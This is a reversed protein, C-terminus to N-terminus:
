RFISVFIEPMDTPSSGGSTNAIYSVDIRQSSASTTPGNSDNSNDTSVLTKMGNYKSCLATVSYNSDPMATTFNITYNGTGNKSVSSVNGSGRIAPTSQTGDFNV